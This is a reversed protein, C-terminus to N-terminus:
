SNWKELVNASTFADRLERLKEKQEHDAGGVFFELTIATGTGTVLGVVFTAIVIITRRPASRRLPAVPDELVTLVPESKKLEIEAQSVKAQLESYLNSKFRVQRELRDQETRLAASQVGQNRDVFEALRVEAEKLLEEAEKFRSRIFDLNQNAKETRIRRVRSSLHEIARQAISAALKSEPATVTVSMIGTEPDVSVGIMKDIAGIAEQEEETLQLVPDEQSAGQASNSRNVLGGVLGITYARLGSLLGQLVGGQRANYDIFSLKRGEQSFFFTDRAVALRVERSKLITPYAEPTLGSSASGLSIGFGQLASLGGSLGAPADSQAERIVRGESTYEYPAIISYILGFATLVATVAAITWRYRAIAILIDLLTVERSGSKLSSQQSQAKTKDEM